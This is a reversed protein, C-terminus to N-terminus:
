FVNKGGHVDTGLIIIVSLLDNVDKYVHIVNKYTKHSFKMWYNDIIYFM